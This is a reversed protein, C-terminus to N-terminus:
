KFSNCVIFSLWKQPFPRHTLSMFLAVSSLGQRVDNSLKTEMTEETSM